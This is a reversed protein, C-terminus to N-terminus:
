EEEVVQLPLTGPPVTGLLVRGAVLAMRVPFVPNLPVSALERGTEPDLSRVALEAGGAGSVSLVANGTAAVHCEGRGREDRWLCELTRRDFFGLGGQGFLAIRAPTVCGVPEYAHVTGSTSRQEGTLLDLIALRYDSDLFMASTGFAGVVDRGPLRIVEHGALDFGRMGAFDSPDALMVFVVADGVPNLDPPTSLPPIECRGLREGSDLDFTALAVVYRSEARDSHTEELTELVVLRHEDLLLLDPCGPIGPAIRARTEGTAMDLTEISLSGDQDDVIAVLRGDRLGLRNLGDRRWVVREEFVNVAVLSREASYAIVGRGLDHISSLMHSGPVDRLPRPERLTRLGPWPVARYWDRGCRLPWTPRILERAGSSPDLALARLAARFAENERGARAHEFALRTEASVGPHEVAERERARLADDSM